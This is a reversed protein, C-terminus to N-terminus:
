YSLLISIQKLDHCNLQVLGNENEGLIFCSGDSGSVKMLVPSIWQGQWTINAVLDTLEWNGNEEVSAQVRETEVSERGLVFFPSLILTLFIAIHVAKM